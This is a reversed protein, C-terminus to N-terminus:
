IGQAGSQRTSRHSRAERSVGVLLAEVLDVVQGGGQSRDINEAAAFADPHPSSTPHLSLPTSHPRHSPISQGGGGGLSRLSPFSNM